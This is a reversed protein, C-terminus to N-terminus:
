RDCRKDIGKLHDDAIGIESFNLIQYPKLLSEILSFIFLPIGLAAHSVNLTNQCKQLVARAWFHEVCIFVVPGDGGESGGARRDVHGCRRSLHTWMERRKTM